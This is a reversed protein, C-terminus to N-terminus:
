SPVSSDPPPVSSDAVSTDSSAGDPITADPITADVMAADPIDADPVEADSIAADSSAADMSAADAAAADHDVTGSDLPPAHSGGASADSRPSPAGAHGRGGTGSSADLPLIGGEGPPTGDFIVRECGAALVAAAAMAVIWGWGSLPGHRRDRLM